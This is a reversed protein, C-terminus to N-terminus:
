MRRAKTQTTNHTITQELEAMLVEYEATYAQRQRIKFKISRVLRPAFIWIGQGAYQFKDPSLTAFVERETLEKNAETTLTIDYDRDDFGELTEYTEGDESTLVSLVDIYCRQNFNNPKLNIWNIVTPERFKVMFEITLEVDPIPIEVDEEVEVPPTPPQEEERRRRRMDRGRGMGVRSRRCVDRLLFAKMLADRSRTARQTPVQIGPEEEDETQIVRPDEILYECEWFTDPTDDFMKLRAEKLKHEPAGEDIVTKGDELTKLHWEGGEPRAEGHAAYFLGEYGGLGKEALWEPLGYISSVETVYHSKNLNGTRKLTVVGQMTDVEAPIGVIKTYDIKSKDNFSDVGYLLNFKRGIAHFYYDKLKCSILKLKNKLRQRETEAYNFKKVVVNGLNDTEKFLVKIDGSLERMTLNYDGSVPPTEKKILRKQLTPKGLNAFFQKFAAFLETLLSSETKIEDKRFKSEIAQLRLIAQQKLLESQYDRTFASKM